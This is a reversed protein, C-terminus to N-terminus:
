FMSEPIIIVDGPKLAEANEPNFLSYSAYASPALMSFLVSATLALNKPFRRM